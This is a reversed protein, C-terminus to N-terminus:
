RLKREGLIKNIRQYDRVLDQQKSTRRGYSEIIKNVHKLEEREEKARHPFSRKWEKYCVKLIDRSSINRRLLSVFGSVYDKGALQDDDHEPSSVDRAPVLSSSNKWIFLIGLVLVGAFLGHLRYKRALAAIGPNEHIGFHTEDFIVTHNDGVLWSLLEPYRKKLMAENSVFYSDTAVVITGNGYVREIFVPGEKLTYLQNWTENVKNFYLSSNWSISEPLNSAEAGSDDAKKQAYDGREFHRQYDLHFGWRDLLSLPCPNYGCRNKSSKKNDEEDTGDSKKTDKDKAKQKEKIKKRDGITERFTRQEEPYLLIVLRSGKAIVNELAEVDRKDMFDM